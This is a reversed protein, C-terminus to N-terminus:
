KNKRRKWYAWGLLLGLAFFISIQVMTEVVDLGSVISNFSAVGTYGFYLFSADRIITGVFTTWVFTKFNIKIVGAGLSLPASPVVPLSRILLLVIDDRRGKNFYKGLSEIDKHSFGIFKGIKSSFIDEAKDALKYLIIAGISKGIAGLLSLPLLGLYSRGQLSAVSGATIMIIPSPIPAVVEEVFSGIFAFAELPLVNALSLLSNQIIDLGLMFVNYM